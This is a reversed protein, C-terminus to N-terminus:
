TPPNNKTINASVQPDKMIVWGQWVAFFILAISIGFTKVSVWTDFSLSHILVINLLAIFLFFGITGRLLVKGTHDNIPMAQRIIWAVWNKGFFQASIWLTTVLLGYLASLKYQIFLPNDFKLTLSGMVLVLLTSVILVKDWTKTTFYRHLLLGITAIM